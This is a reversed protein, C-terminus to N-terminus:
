SDGRKDHPSRDPAHSADRLVTVKDDGLFTKSCQGPCTFQFNTLGANITEGNLGLIPDGVELIGADHERKNLTYYYRM